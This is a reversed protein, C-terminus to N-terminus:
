KQFQQSCSYYAWVFSSPLLFESSPVLFWAAGM